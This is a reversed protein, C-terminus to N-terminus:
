FGSAGEAGGNRADNRECEELLSRAFTQCQNTLSWRGLEQGSMLVRDVCKPDVNAVPACNVEEKLHEGSHDNVCTDTVYPSDARDGPVGAGCKGMGGESRNTMLWWHELGLSEAVPIQAVRRCLWVNGDNGMPGNQTGYVPIGSRVEGPPPEMRRRADAEYGEVLAQAAAECTGAPPATSSVRSGDSQNAAHGCDVGRFDETAGDYSGYDFEGRQRGIPETM